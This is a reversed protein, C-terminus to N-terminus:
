DDDDDDDDDDVSAGATESPGPTPADEEKEADKSEEKDKDGWDFSCPNDISFSNKVDRLMAPVDDLQFLLMENKTSAIDEDDKDAAAQTEDTALDHEKEEQKEEGEKNEGLIISRKNNNSDMVVHNGEKSVAAFIESDSSPDLTKFAEMTGSTVREQLVVFHNYIEDLSPISTVTHDELIDDHKEEEIPIYRTGIEVKLPTASSFCDESLNTPKMEKSSSPSDVNQVRYSEVKSPSQARSATTTTPKKTAAVSAQSRRPSLFRRLGGRRSGEKPLASTTTTPANSPSFANIVIVSDPKM